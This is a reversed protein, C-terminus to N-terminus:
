GDQVIQHAGRECSRSPRILGLCREVFRDGKGRHVGLIMVIRAAVVKLTALELSRFFAESPHDLEIGPVDVGM